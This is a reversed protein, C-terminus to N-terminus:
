SSGIAEMGCIKWRLYRTSEKVKSQHLGDVYGYETEADKRVDTGSKLHIMSFGKM